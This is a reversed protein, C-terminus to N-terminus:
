SNIPVPQKAQSLIFDLLVVNIIVCVLLPFMQFRLAVPSAFVSFLLNCIWVFTAILWLNCLRRDLRWGALIIFSISLMVYVANMVGCVVPYYDLMSVRNDKFRSYLKDEKFGFWSKTIPPITDMLFGYNELFEVPPVYYKVLNPWLYNRAFDTPYTKILTSGYEKYFPAISAWKKFDTMTTDGNYKRMMYIRLPSERRWMYATSIDLMVNPYQIILKSTTDFYRRVDQDLEKFKLPLNKRDASDIFRYAYMGNNALQWGSFPSFEFKGVASEYRLSTWGVFSFVLVLMIFAAFIKRKLTDSSILLTLASILPYYMANYRVMFAYTVILAQFIMWGWTPRNAIWILSIFWCVSVSFFISDSSVYNAMYLAVPNILLLLVLLVQLVKRVRYFYFVTYFLGLSSLQFFIYQFFVLSISGTLFVSFFRLFKSYGIPYTSISSNYFASQVYSYSDGSIFAPFPYYYKFVFFQLVSILVFLLLIGRNLRDEMIFKLVGGITDGGMVEKNWSFYNRKM